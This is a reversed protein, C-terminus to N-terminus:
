PTFGQRAFGPWYPCFDKLEVEVPPADVIDVGGKFRDRIAELTGYRNSPLEGSTTMTTYTFM